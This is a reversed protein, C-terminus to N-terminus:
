KKEWINEYEEQNIPRQIIPQVSQDLPTHHEEKQKKLRTKLYKIYFVYLLIVAIIIAIILVLPSTMKQLFTEEIIIYGSSLGQANNYLTSIIKIQYTSGTPLDTPVQWNYSGQNPAYEEITKYKVGDKYLEISLYNGINESTWQIVVIEGKYLVEGDSPSIITITRDGISFSNSLDYVSTISKSRIEIQYNLDPALFDNITWSYKGSNDINTAIALCYVDNKYLKIDVRTGANKSSWVINHTENPYWRSSYSPSTIKIFREDISFYSSVDFVDSYTNSVIKIRYKSSTSLSKPITWSYTGSDSSGLGIYYGYSSTGFLYYISVHSGASESNWRINYTEGKYLTEGGSPATITISRLSITFYDSFDYISPDSSSSIKIQYYSSKSLGSTVYWSYSGYNYAYTTITIVYSGSRYLELKLYDGINESTWSITYSDETYCTVGESPYTVTISKSQIYFPDSFDDAYPDTLSAVRIQYTYYNTGYNSPITWSFAGDNSTNSSITSYYGGGRYIEIYVYEGSDLSYSWTISISQGPYYNQGSYPTGVIIWGPNASVNNSFLCLMSFVIFFSLIVSKILKFKM